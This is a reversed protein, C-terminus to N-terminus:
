IKKVNKYQKIPKSVTNRSLGITKSIERISLGNNHLNIINLKDMIEQVNRARGM